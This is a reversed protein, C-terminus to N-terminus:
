GHQVEETVNHEQGISEVPISNHELRIWRYTGSTEKRILRELMRRARQAGPIPVTKTYQVPYDKMVTHKTVITKTTGTGKRALYRLPDVPKGNKYLGFHLHPGTSRGTSGVRGIIQGQRVHQGLKVKIASQHAYLSVFGGGHDIKVVKGYGRMWGAYVVRGDHVARLPTGRRAGFDVGYHPRYKHLIPHWRRLSFRSTIRPHDLPMRFHRTPVKKITTYTFPRKEMRTYTKTQKTDHYRHGKKDVFVFYRKGHVEALAAAIEPRGMPAGLRSRQRYVFAFRDEPHLTRFDIKGDFLKALLFALRPHNTQRIITQRYGEGVAFSVKDEVRYFVIPIIDLRCGESQDCVIRIQKKGDLPILAQRLTGHDRLEYYGTGATIKGIQKTVAPSARLLPNDPHNQRIYEPVTRNKPWIHREVRAGWLLVSVAMLGALLRM